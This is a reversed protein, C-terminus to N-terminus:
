ETFHVNHDLVQKIKKKFFKPQKIKTPYAKTFVSDTGGEQKVSDPSVREQLSLSIGDVVGVLAEESTGETVGVFSDESDGDM